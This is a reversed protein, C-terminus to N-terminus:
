KENCHNSVENKMEGKKYKEAISELAKRALSKKLKSLFLQLENYTFATKEGTGQSQIFEGSGTMILNM